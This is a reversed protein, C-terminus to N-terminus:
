LWAAIRAIQPIMQLYKRLGLVENPVASGQRVRGAIREMDGLGQLLMTFRSRLAPSEYM